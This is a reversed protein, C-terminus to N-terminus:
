EFIEPYLANMRNSIELYQFIRFLSGITYVTYYYKSIAICVERRQLCFLSIFTIHRTNKNM